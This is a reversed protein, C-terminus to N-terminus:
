NMLANFVSFINNSINEMGFDGPHIGVGRNSYKRESKAYNRNDHSSAGLHSLDVIFANTKLAAATIASIKNKEYWFPLCVIKKSGKFESIFEVYKSVFLNYEDDKKLRDRPVNEGLQFIVYDPMFNKIKELRNKDFSEFNREFSAVNIVAYEVSINKQM